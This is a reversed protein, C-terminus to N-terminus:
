KSLKPVLVVVAKSPAGESAIFNFDARAMPASEEKAFVSKLEAEDTRMMRALWNSTEAMNYETTKMGSVNLEDKVFKNINNSRKEALDQDAKSLDSSGKPFPKDSWAAIEIKSIQDHGINAALDRIKAKDAESLTASGVDFTLVASRDYAHKQVDKESTGTKNYTSTPSTKSKADKGWAGATSGVALAAIICFISAIRKNYNRM